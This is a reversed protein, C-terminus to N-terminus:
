LISVIIAASVLLFVIYLFWKAGSLASQKWNKSEFEETITHTMGFQDTVEETEPKEHKVMWTIVVFPSVIIVFSAWITVLNITIGPIFAPGLAIGIFLAGLLLM